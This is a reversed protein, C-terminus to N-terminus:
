QIPEPTASLSICLNVTDMNDALRWYDLKPWHIWRDTSSVATQKKKKKTRMKRWQHVASGQVYKQGSLTNCHYHQLSTSNCSSWWSEVGSNSGSSRQTSKKKSWMLSELPIRHKADCWLRLAAADGRRHLTRRATADEERRWISRARSVVM